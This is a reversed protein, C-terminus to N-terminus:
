SNHINTNEDKIHKIIFEGISKHGDYSPHWDEIKKNTDYYITQKYKSIHSNLSIYDADGSEVLNNPKKIYPSWNDENLIYVKCGIKNSLLNSVKTFRWLEREYYKSTSIFESFFLKLADFKIKSTTIDEEIFNGGMLSNKFNDFDSEVNKIFISKFKYPSYHTQYISKDSETVSGLINKKKSFPFTYRSATSIQIIIIDEKSFNDMNDFIFDLIDDNTAGNLGNNILELNFYNAVINSWIPKSEDIYHKYTNIYEGKEYGFYRCGHGATFSDGFTWLKGM